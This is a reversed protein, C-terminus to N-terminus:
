MGRMAAINEEETVPIDIEEFTFQSFSNTTEVIRVLRVYSINDKTNFALETRADYINAPVILTRTEKGNIIKNVVLTRFYEGGNGIGGIARIAVPTASEAIMMIGLELTEAKIDKLWRITAIFWDQSEHDADKYAVLDGVRVRIGCPDDRVLGMGGHSANRQTWIQATFDQEKADLILRARAQTSYIKEWADIDADDADFLSTRPKVVGTALKEEMDGIKWPTYDVPMISLEKSIGEPRYFRIEDREPAFPEEESLFHHSTSLGATLLIHGTEERRNDKRELKGGWVRRLRMLMDRYMRDKLPMDTKTDASEGVALRKVLIDLGMMVKEVDLILGREPNHKVLTGAYKPPSETVLDVYFRGAMFKIKDRPILQSHVVWKDLLKYVKAAEGEMLHYPNALSLFIIKKYGHEVTQGPNFGNVELKLENNHFNKDHSFQYLRHLEGWVGEPEPMYVLYGALLSEALYNAAFFVSQYLTKESSRLNKNDGVIDTITIKFGFALEQMFGLVMEAKLRSKENLPFLSGRYKDRLAEKYESIIPILTVLYQFRMAPVMQSRNYKRIVELVHAASKEVDASHLKDLWAGLSQPAPDLSKIDVLDQAPVQLNLLNMGGTKTIVENIM